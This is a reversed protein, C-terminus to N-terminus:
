RHRHRDRTRKRLQLTNWHVMRVANRDGAGADLVAVLGDNRTREQRPGKAGM